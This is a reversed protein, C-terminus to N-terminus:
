RPWRSPRCRWTGGVAVPDPDTLASSATWGDWQRACPSAAANPQCRGLAARQDQGRAPRRRRPLAQGVRSVLPMVKERIIRLVGHGYRVTTPEFRVPSMETKRSCRELTLPKGALRLPHQDHM